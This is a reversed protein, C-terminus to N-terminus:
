TVKDQAGPVLLSQHAGAAMASLASTGHLGTAAKEGGKLNVWTHRRCKVGSLGQQEAAAASIASAEIVGLALPMAGVAGEEGTLDEESNQQPAAALPTEVPVLLPTPSAPPLGSGALPGLRLFISDPHPSQGARWPETIVCLVADPPFSDGPGTRCQARDRM